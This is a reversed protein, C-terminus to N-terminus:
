PLTEKPAYARKYVLITRTFEIVIAGDQNYGTTKFKVIGQHPRSKSARMELVQSRAYITDGEFVPNPL